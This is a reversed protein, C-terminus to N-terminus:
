CTSCISTDQDNWMTSSVRFLLLYYGRCIICNSLPHRHAHSTWVFNNCILNNSVYRLHLFISPSQSSDHHPVLFGLHGGVHRGIKALILIYMLYAAVVHKSEVINNIINFVAKTHHAQSNSLTNFKNYMYYSTFARKSPFVDLM